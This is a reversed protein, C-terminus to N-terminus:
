SDQKEGKKKLSGITTLFIAWFPAVYIISDPIQSSINLIGMLPFNWVMMEIPGFYYTGRNIFLVLSVVMLLLADSTGILGIVLGNKFGTKNRLGYILWSGLFLIGIIVEIIRVFINSWQWSFSFFVFSVIRLIISIFLLKIGHRVNNKNM